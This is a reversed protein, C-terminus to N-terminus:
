ARRAWCRKQRAPGSPRYAALEVEKDAKEANLRERLEREASRAAEIQLKIFRVEGSFIEAENQHQARQAELDHSFRVEAAQRAQAETEAQRQWQGISAQLADIEAAQANSRTEAVTRKEREQRLEAERTAASADSVLPRPRLAVTFATLPVLHIAM